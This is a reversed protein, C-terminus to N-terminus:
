IKQIITKQNTFIIYVLLAAAGVAIWPLWSIVSSTNKVTKEAGEAVAEVAGATSTITNAASNGVAAVTGATTKVGGKLYDLARTTSSLEWLNNAHLFNRFVQYGIVISSNGNGKDFEISWKNDAYTKGYDKKLADYYKMWEEAGWQCSPDLFSLVGGLKATDPISSSKITGYDCSM